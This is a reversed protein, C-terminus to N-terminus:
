HWISRVHTLLCFFPSAAGYVPLFPSGCVRSAPGDCVKRNLKLRALMVKGFTGKGLVKLLEFSDMDMEIAEPRGGIFSM